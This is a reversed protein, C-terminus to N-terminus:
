MHIYFLEVLVHQPEQFLVNDYSDTNRIEGYGVIFYLSPFGAELALENWYKEMEKLCTRQIWGSM